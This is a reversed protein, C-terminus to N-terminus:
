RDTKNRPLYTLIASGYEPSPLEFSLESVTHKWSQLVDYYYRHRDGLYLDFCNGSIMEIADHRDQPSGSDLLVHIKPRILSFIGYEPFQHETRLRELAEYEKMAHDRNTTQNWYAVLERHTELWVSPTAVADALNLLRDKAKRRQEQSWLHGFFRLNHLLACHLLRAVAPDNHDCWQELIHLAARMHRVAIREHGALRWTNAYVLISRALRPRDNYQLYFAVPVSAYKRLRPIDIPAEMGVDILLETAHIYQYAHDITKFPHRRLHERIAAAGARVEARLKWTSPGHRELLFDLKLLRDWVTDRRSELLCPLPVLDEFPGICEAAKMVDANHAM